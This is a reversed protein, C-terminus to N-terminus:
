AKVQTTQKGAGPTEQMLTALLFVGATVLLISALWYEDFMDGMIFSLIALALFGLAPYRAWATPQTKRLLWLISFTAAIGLFLVWIFVGWSITNPFSAYERHPIFSELLNMIGLSAFGGAPIFAWWNNKSLLYISFFPLALILMVGVSVLSTDSILALITVITFTAAPILLGRRRTNCAFGVYFPIAISLLIPFTILPSDALHNISMWTSIALGAFILAPFLWGWNRLGTVMYVILFIGGTVAFAIAKAQQSISNWGNGLLFTLVALVMLGAASYIAWQTPQTTRRLWLIFSTIALGLFLIGGFLGTHSSNKNSLLVELANVLGLSTLCGTPIIAWWNVESVFYVAYCPLALMLLTVSGSTYVSRFTTGGGGYLFSSTVLPNFATEVAAFILGYAPILLWWQKRNLFYGVIFWLTIAILIPVGIPLSHFLSTLNGSNDIAVGAFIFGPLLWGWKKIGALFYTIVFAFAACIEIVLWNQTSLQNFEIIGVLLGLGFLFFVIAWTIYIIKGKM